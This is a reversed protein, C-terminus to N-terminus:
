AGVKASHRAGEQPSKEFGNSIDSVLYLLGLLASSLPFENNFRVM